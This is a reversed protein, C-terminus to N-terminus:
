QLAISSGRLSNSLIIRSFSLLFCIPMPPLIFLRVVDREGGGGACEGLRGEREGEGVKRFCEAEGDYVLDGDGLRERIYGKFRRFEYEREGELVGGGGADRRDCLDRYTDDRQTGRQAQGASQIRLM